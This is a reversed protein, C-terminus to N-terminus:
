CVLVFIPWIVVSFANGSTEKTLVHDVRSIISVHGSFRSIHWSNLVHLQIVVLRSASATHVRRVVRSGKADPCDNTIHICVRSTPGVRETRWFGTRVAVSSLCESATVCM